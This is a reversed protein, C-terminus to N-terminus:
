WRLKYFHHDLTDNFCKTNSTGCTAFLNLKVDWTGGSLRGAEPALSRSTYMHPVRCVYTANCLRERNSASLWGATCIGQESNPDPDISAKPWIAAPQRIIILPSQPTYFLVSRSQNPHSKIERKPQRRCIQAACCLLLLWADLQVALLTLYFLPM